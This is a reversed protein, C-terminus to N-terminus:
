VQKAWALFATMGDAPYVLVPGDPQYSDRVAVRDPPLAAVEVCNGLAGSRRSKRWALESLPTRDDDM